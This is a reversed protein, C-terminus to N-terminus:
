DKESNCNAIIGYFESGPILRTTSIQDFGSEKLKEGIIIYLSSNNHSNIENISRRYLYRLIMSPYQRIM